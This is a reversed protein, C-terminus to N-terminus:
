SADHHAPLVCERILEGFLDGGEDLAQQRNADTMGTWHWAVAQMLEVAAATISADATPDVAAATRISLWASFVHFLTRRECYPYNM